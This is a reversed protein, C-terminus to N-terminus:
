SARGAGGIWAMLSRALGSPDVPLRRTLVSESFECADARDDHRAVHPLKLNAASNMVDDSRNNGHEGIRYAVDPGSRCPDRGVEAPALWRSCALDAIDEIGGQGSPEYLVLRLDVTLFLVISRKVCLKSRSLPDSTLSVLTIIM